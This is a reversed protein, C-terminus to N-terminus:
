RTLGKKWASEVLAAIDVPRNITQGVRLHSLFEINGEPGRIPSPLINEVGFGMPGVEEIFKRLVDVHVGPDRVVGGKGIRASGAEFQPKILAVIQGGPRVMDALPRLLLGVGIFSADISAADLPLERGLVQLSLYRGNTRDLVTVRSDTRLKWDLQGYGVDVAYVHEAGYQLWCDTFGGTSAGVDVVTWKEPNIDFGQLAAQLKVGGRSVFPLAAKVTIVEEDSVATGAKSAKKGNVHVHGALILAQAKSRTEALGLRVIKVDLRETVKMAKHM